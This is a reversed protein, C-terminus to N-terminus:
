ASRKELAKMMTYMRKAGLRRSGGGINRVAKATFVFEGDSLMAPIDDSTGTGPGNIPGNKRPFKTPLDAIGGTKMKQPGYQAGQIDGYYRTNVGGPPVLYDQPNAAFVDSGLTPPEPKEAPQGEFAGLGYAAATGALALPAYTSLTSPLAENFMTHVFSGPPAKAIQEATMGPFKDQVLKIADDIGQKKLNAPSFYEKYIDKGGQYTSKAADVATDYASGLSDSTSKYVSSAAEGYKGQKILDGASPTSPMQYDAITRIDPTEYVKPLNGIKAQLESGTLGYSKPSIANGSADYKIQYDSITRTASAPTSVPASAANARDFSANRLATVQDDGTSSIINKQQSSILDGLPDVATGDPGIKISSLESGDPNFKTLTSTGDANPYTGSQPPIKAGAAVEDATGAVVEDASSAPAGSFAKGLSKLQGSVTTPGAYPTSFGQSVGTFGGALVASMAGSRLADKINGGALLTSGAGGIFGGIAAVGAASSVGLYAAAAPGLVFGLAAAIVVKGVTSKAFSKAAGVVSKVAGTVAKAASKFVKGVSKVLKNIFFEPLGTRPNMTGSGGNRRLMRAESPTIHALMTDGNRGLSAIGSAIPNMRGVSGGMAFGQPTPGAAASIQDLAMNMAGFYSADFEPPLIDEPVGEKILEARLEPYKDPEALAMDVIQGLADIMESPLQMDRLMSKFEMVAQPDVEEGATLLEENIQEPTFNQRLQDFVAQNEPTLLDQKGGPTDMENPLSMIGQMADAM